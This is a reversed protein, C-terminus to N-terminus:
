ETIKKPQTDALGLGLGDCVVLQAIRENQSARGICLAGILSPRNGYSPSLERSLQGGSVDIADCIIKPGIMKSLPEALALYEREIRAWRERESWEPDTFGALDVSVDINEATAV